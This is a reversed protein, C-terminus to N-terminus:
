VFILNVDLCAPCTTPHSSRCAQAIGSKPEVIQLGRQRVSASEVGHQWRKGLHGMIRAERAEQLRWQMELKIYERRLSQRGM